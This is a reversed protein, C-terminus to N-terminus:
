GEKGLLRFMNKKYEEVGPQDFPNIGLAHGSLAVAYEFFYIAQGLAHAGADPLTITSCPVKGTVHAALTGRRAQENVHALSTGALYNLGDGDDVTTPIVVDIPKTAIALFTEFLIRQGDQVYQGLSHLDTTYAVSAPFIGKGEKGECEGFLQKWWEGLFALRPEMTALLEITKGSGALATRLAAYAVAPNGEGESALIRARMQRAGDVLAEIDIGAIALPLLGVPTLVSFRGGVADPIVFTDYGESNALARLAGRREDTTAVIRRRAEDIGYRSEAAHRLLRFAIAPETTTGSKSIVNIAFDRSDLASLLSALYEGDLHHGAYLIEMDSRDFPSRLSELIARTGLYSGGIGVIVLTSARHRIRKACDLIRPLESQISEPLDLWGTFEAGPGSGSHLLSRADGIRELATTWDNDSLFPRASSLDFTLDTM